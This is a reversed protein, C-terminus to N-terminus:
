PGETALRSWQAEVDQLWHLEPEKLLGGLQRILHHHYDVLWDRIFRELLRPEVLRPEFPVLTLVEWELWGPRGQAVRIAALVELRIGWQGERYLGPEISCVMGPLLVQPNPDPGLRQPGEHVCLAHGVGHGTGHGYNLGDEWLTSRCLADIQYGRTGEPFPTMLTRVLARLVRTYDAKWEPRAEGRLLVRTVDTTGMPYHAGSDLLLLGQDGLRVGKGEPDYHVVAGNPGWAVIPAFSPGWAGRSARVRWSLHAVEEETAFLEVDEWRRLLEVMAAGDRRHAERFGELEGPSKIAKLLGIPPPNPAVTQLSSPLLGEASRQADIVVPEPLTALIEPLDQLPRVTVRDRELAAVTTQEINEPRCLLVCQEPSVVLHAEALPHYDVDNGRLNLAWAVEDLAACWLSQGGAQRMAVRVRDLKLLRGEVPYDAEYDRILGAPPPPRNTWRSELVGRAEELRVGRRRAWSRWRELRAPSWQMPNYALVRVYDLAQDLHDQLAEDLGVEARVLRWGARLEHEAQLWYRSDTSLLGGEILLLVVGASGRFGSLPQRTRWHALPYESGHPDTGSDLWGDVGRERMWSRLSEVLVEDM